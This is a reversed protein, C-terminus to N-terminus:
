ILNNNKLHNYVAKMMWQRMTNGPHPRHIDIYIGVDKRFRIRSGSTTGKNELVYGFGALLSCMEEFTFDAPMQLFRKRLKEKSSMAESKKM